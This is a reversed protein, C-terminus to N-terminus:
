FFCFLTHSLTLHKFSILTNLFILILIMKKVYGSLCCYQLNKISCNIKMKLIRSGFYSFEIAFHCRPQQDSCNDAHLLLFARWYPCSWYWICGLLFLYTIIRMNGRSIPTVLEFNIKRYSVYVELRNILYSYKAVM